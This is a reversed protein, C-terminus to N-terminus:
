RYGPYKCSYWPDFYPLAGYGRVGEPWEGGQRVCYSSCEECVRPWGNPGIARDWHNYVCEGYHYGCEQECDSDASVAKMALSTGALTAAIKTSASVASGSIAGAIAVGRLLSASTSVALLTLGFKETVSLKEYWKKCETTGTFALLLIDGLRLVQDSVSQGLMVIQKESTLEIGAGDEGSAIKYVGNGTLPDLIIYGATVKGYFNIRHSHTTPLIM